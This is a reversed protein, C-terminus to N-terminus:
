PPPFLDWIRFTCTARLIRECQKKSLIPYLNQKLTEISIGKELGEKIISNKFDDFSDKSFVPNCIILIYLKFYLFFNYLFINM